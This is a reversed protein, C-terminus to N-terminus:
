REHSAVGPIAGAVVNVGTRPEIDRLLTGLNPMVEMEIVISGDDAQKAPALAKMRAAAADTPAARRYKPCFIVHDQCRYVMRHDTHYPTNVQRLEM